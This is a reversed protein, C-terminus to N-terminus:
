EFYYMKFQHADHPLNLERALGILDTLRNGKPRIIIRYGGDVGGEDIYRKGIQVIGKELLYVDEREPRATSYANNIPKFNDILVGLEKTREEVQFFTLLSVVPCQHSSSWDTQDDKLKSSVLYHIGQGLVPRQSNTEDTM